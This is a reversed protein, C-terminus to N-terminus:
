VHVVDKIWDGTSAYKPQKWTKAITVVPEEEDRWDSPWRGKTITRSTVRRMSSLTGEAKGGTAASVKTPQRAVAWCKSNVEKLFHNKDRRGMNNKRFQQRHQESWGLNIGFGQSIWALFSRCGEKEVPKKALVNLKKTKQAGGPKLGWNKDELESIVLDSYWQRLNNWAKVNKLKIFTFKIVLM